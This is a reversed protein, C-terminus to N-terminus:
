GARTVYRAPTDGSTLPATVTVAAAAPPVIWTVATVPKGCHPCPRVATIGDGPTAGSATITGGPPTTGSAPTRRGPPIPGAAFRAPSRNYAARCTNGCFKQRPASTTWTFTKGCRPCPRQEAATM